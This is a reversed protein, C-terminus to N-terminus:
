KTVKLNYFNFWQRIVAPNGSAQTTDDLFMEVSECVYNYGDDTLPNELFVQCSDCHQPTDSEGGGNPYPGKPFDDSDYSSEDSPNPPAKGRSTLSNRIQPGCDECLLAARYAYVNM